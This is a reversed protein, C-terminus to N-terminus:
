DSIEIREMIENIEDACEKTFFIEDCNEARRYVCKGHFFTAEVVTYPIRNIPVEFIDQNLIVFDAYKGAEISGFEDYVGLQMAGNSTYADVAQEVSIGESQPPFCLGSKDYKRVVSFFIGCFPSQEIEGNLSDSGFTVKVGNEAMTGMPFLGNIRKEGLARRTYPDDIIWYPTTQFFINGAKTIKRISNETYMENHAITKTGKIEGASIFADLVNEVAKDGIAHIHVNFGEAGATKIANTIEDKPILESGQQLQSSICYPEYLFATQAEVTGDAIMKLTTPRVCETVYKERFDKMRAVLCDIAESEEGYYVFSTFFNFDLKGEKEMSILMDLAETNEDQITAADFCTTMGLRHYEKIINKLAKMRKNIDCSSIANRCLTMAQIEVALGTPNGEKDRSFYSSESPDPTNRDIGAFELAKSNMLLAHGDNSFIFVPKDSIACDIHEKSFNSDVSLDFGMGCLVQEDSCGFEEICEPLVGPLQEATVDPNVFFFKIADQISKEVLHAHSEVMGSIVRRKQLDVGKGYATLIEDDSGVALFKGDRVAFATAYPRDKNSTYVKANFYVKINNNM